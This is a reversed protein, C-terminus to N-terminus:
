KTQTRKASVKDRFEQLADTTQSSMGLRARDTPTFGLQSLNQAIAKELQRLAARERWELGIRFMKDRLLTREDTQECVLMVLEIDMDKRLWPSASTWIMEWLHAGSGLAGSQSRILPRHPEPPSNDPFPNPLAVITPLKRKGPNGTRIKQEIPKPKRGVQAM